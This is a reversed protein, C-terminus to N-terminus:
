LGVPAITVCACTDAGSASKNQVSMVAEPTNSVMAHVMCRTAESGCDSSIATSLSSVNKRSGVPNTLCPFLVKRASFTGTLAVTSATEEGLVSTETVSEVRTVDSLAGLKDGVAGGDRFGEAWGVLM